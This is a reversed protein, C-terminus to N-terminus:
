RGTEGPDTDPDPDPDAPASPRVLARLAMAMILALAAATLVMGVAVGLYIWAYPIELAPSTQRGALGVLRISYISLVGVAGFGVVAAWLELAALRRGRLIMALLDIRLLRGRLALAAVGLFVWWIMAIRALEDTWGLPYAIVFRFFVGLLSSLVTVAFLAIVLPRLVREVGAVVPKPAFTVGSGAASQPTGQPETGDGAGAPRRLVESKSM